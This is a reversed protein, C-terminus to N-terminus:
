NSVSSRDEGQRWFRSNFGVTHLMRLVRTSCCLRGNSERSHQHRFLIERQGRSANDRKPSLMDRTYAIWVIKLGNQKERLLSHLHLSSTHTHTHSLVDWTYMHTGRRKTWLGCQPLHLTVRLFCYLCVSKERVRCCPAFNSTMRKASFLITGAEPKGRVRTVM